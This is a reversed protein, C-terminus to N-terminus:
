NLVRLIYLMCNSLKVKIEAKRKELASVLQNESRRFAKQLRDMM